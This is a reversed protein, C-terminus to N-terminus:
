WEVSTATHLWLFITFFWNEGLLDKSIYFIIDYFQFGLMKKLPFM